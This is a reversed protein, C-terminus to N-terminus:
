EIYQLIIFPFVTSDFSITFLDCPYNEIDSNLPVNLRILYIRNIHIQSESVYIKTQLKTTERKHKERWKSILSKLCLSPRHFAVFVIVRTM